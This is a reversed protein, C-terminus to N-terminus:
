PELIRRLSEADTFDRIVDKAGHSLLTEPPLGTAMGVVDIGAARAAQVGPVSDEFVLCDEPPLGIKELACLYIDPTPKSRMGNEAGVTATFRTQWNMIHLVHDITQRINSTAMALATHPAMADLFDCAGPIEVLRTKLTEWYLDRRQDMMLKPDINSALRGRQALVALMQPSTSGLFENFEELTIDAGHRSFIEIWTEAHLPETDVLVGDCDFILGKYALPEDPPFLTAIDM